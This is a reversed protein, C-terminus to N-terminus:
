KPRRPPKLVIRSFRERHQNLYNDTQATTTHAAAERIKEVPEGAAEMQALAYPRIDRTTV